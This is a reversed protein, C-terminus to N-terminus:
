SFYCSPEKISTVFIDKKIEIEEGQEMRTWETENLQQDFNKSFAEFSTISRSDKPYYIKPYGAWGNLQNLQLLGTLHDRDWHSVFVYKVKRSKQLLQTVIGDGADFVLDLEIIFFWTSFLATSYGSITLKM